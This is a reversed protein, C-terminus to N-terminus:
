IYFNFSTKTKFVGTENKRKGRTTVKEMQIRKDQDQEHAQKM